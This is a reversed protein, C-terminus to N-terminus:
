GWYHSGTGWQPADPNAKIIESVNYPGSGGPTVHTMFYFMGVYRDKKVPGCQQYDPLPRGLADTAVWNDKKNNRFSTAKKASDIEGPYNVENWNRIGILKKYPDFVADEEKTDAAKYAYWVPKAGGPDKEDDPFRRLGIRLGGEHRNDYWNHWQFGDIGDLREMKKWTYAFGAAQEAMDSDSYSRSNTGNESLWVTRKYKGKYLVSPQKIWASLVELNKFTILPSNFDFTVQQDLWTKPEFLSQPYPHHAMAWEFDGEAGTYQLLLEMLDKSPYFRPHATWAWYHTLSIFVESYPNYKRAIAYCLRMSKVYADMFISATKVGMNTWEWGADVENHMIWHNLRGYKKDPRSYRSALFDLGAAYCDVSAANTMNPMSYIGAPDMDPHQLLKGIAPDPCDEAKDILIIAATIIGKGSTMLFTSDFLNVQKSDFYYSRGNYSHEIRGPAPTLYMFRAFWINVTASTINLEDLDETHGRGASFGGLGKKGKAVEKELNAVPKVEDFYRAHSILQYHNDTRKALVWKSLLRDYNIGNRKEFRNINESFHNVTIKIATAFKQEETVDMYPTVECLYVNGNESTNGDIHIQEDDVKIHAIGSSYEKSLYQKLNNEMVAEQTKKQERLVLMEKEKASLSRIMANRLQISVDKKNGMGFKLYDGPAGWNKVEPILDVTYGVWGESFGIKEITRTALLTSRSYFYIKFRDLGKPIFYDFSLTTASTDRISRIPRAVISPDNGTTEMAITTGQVIRVTMNHVSDTNWELNISNRPAQKTQAFIFVVSFLLFPLTLLKKM